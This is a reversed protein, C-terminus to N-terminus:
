KVRIPLIQNKDQSDTVTNFSSYIKFKIQPYNRIHYKHILSVM